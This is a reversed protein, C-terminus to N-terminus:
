YLMTRAFTICEIKATPFQKKLLFSAMNLTAGTTMIDDIILITKHEFMKSQRYKVNVEFNYKKLWRQEQTLNKSYATKRTKILLDEFLLPVVIDKNNISGNKNYDQGYNNCINTTYKTKMEDKVAKLFANAILGAHNYGKALLQWQTCPIFCVYDAPPMTKYVELVSKGIFSLVDTQFYFKLWMVAKRINYRYQYCSRAIDFYRKGTKCSPCIVRNKDLFNKGDDHNSSSTQFPYGCKVCCDKQNIFENRDACKQCLFLNNSQLEDGCLCCCRPSIIDLLFSFLCKAKIALVDLSKFFM